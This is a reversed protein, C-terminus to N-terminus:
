WTIHYKQYKFVWGSALLRNPCFLSAFPSHLLSWLSSSWLKYRECLIILTILDLLNLHDPCTARISSSLARLIKLLYVKLFSVKLSPLILIYRLSITILVLFETLEAWSLSQQLARTFASNFRRTGYAM